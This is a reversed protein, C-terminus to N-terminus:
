KWLKICNERLKSLLRSVKKRVNAPSLNFDQAVQSSSQQDILYSCVLKFDINSLHNELCQMLTKVRLKYHQSQGNFGTLNEVEEDDFQLNQSKAKNRIYDAMQNSAIRWLYGYNSSIEEPRELKAMTYKTLVLSTLDEVDERVSVRKFFYGYIKPYLQNFEEDIESFNIKM